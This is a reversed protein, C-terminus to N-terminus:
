ADKKKKRTDAILGVKILGDYYKLPVDYSYKEAKKGNRWIHGSSCFTRKGNLFMVHDKLFETKKTRM